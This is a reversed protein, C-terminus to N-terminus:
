KTEPFAKDEMFILLDLKLFVDLTENGSIKTFIKESSTPEEPLPDTAPEAGGEVVIGGDDAGEVVIGGDDAGEVVIGGDDSSRSASGGSSKEGSPIPAPNEVRGLRVEFFYKDSNGLRNLFDRTTEETARFTVEVPLRHAVDPLVAAGGRGRSSTTSPRRSGSGPRAGKKPAAGPWDEGEEMPLKPRHLNVVEKGGAENLQTFLYELAELQFALEGTAEEPPLYQAYSEFGLTFEKPLDKEGPFLAKVRAVSAKLKESFESAPIDDVSEPNFALLKQRADRAKTLVAALNEAKEKAAEPTPYPDLGEMKQLASKKTAIEGQLTELDSGAGLGWFILGGSAAVTLAGLGILFKNEKLM